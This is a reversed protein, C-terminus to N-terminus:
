GEFPLVKFNEHSHKIVSITIHTRETITLALIFNIIYWNPKIEANKCRKIAKEIKRMGNKKKEKEQM